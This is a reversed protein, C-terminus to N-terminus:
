FKMRAMSIVDTEAFQQTRYKLEGVMAIMAANDTCYEFKPIYTKWGLSQEAERLATRIGSNASVGGGIAVENIGTIKVANKLKDMLYEVITSQIGACIDNLNEEVFNPNAKTEKEVFYLVATKLGSFSFELPGVKPKPFPFRSPDGQQALKDMMPGGPYPLGLIKASKDFAEGVADDLTEGIIEMDFYNKVKVLQTHGGSITLAIFPFGPAKQEEDKIFHALIHAQMHNVALLPIGMGMAFSKSFSAGVLLSGMLGPGQTFAIASVAKKDINAQRLAEHVVPVINQQHARSALEPVVGGYAEHIKQTAVVNSLVVGNNIVSAATDDCSSEIGLIYINQDKM